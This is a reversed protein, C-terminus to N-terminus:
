VVNGGPRALSAVLRTSVPDGVDFFVVPVTTTVHKLAATAPTRITVVVDCKTRVLEAALDPLRDRSAAYRHEVM